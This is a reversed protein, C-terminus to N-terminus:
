EVEPTSNHMADIEDHIGLHVRIREHLDSNEGHDYVERLLADAQNAACGNEMAQRLHQKCEANLREIEADMALLEARLTQWDDDCETLHCDDISLMAALVEPKITM